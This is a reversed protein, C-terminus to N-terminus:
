PAAEVQYIRGGETTLYLEGYSDRHLSTPSQVVADIHETLDTVVGGELRLSRVVGACYDTFLYRGVLDPFCGGRYVEGGIIACYYDPAGHPIDLVPRRRGVTECGTLPDYCADGEMDNWGFNTGAIQEAPVHDLEEHENQGVDGLYLDGNAPDFSWRWPNRLGIAYVEGRGGGMVYPNGPPIGYPLEASPHDVDIRLLKALLQSPDQGNENPDGGGGGDGTGIVLYGSSDFAIMGGNHNVDYDRVRLIDRRSAPDAHDPDGAQTTYEAVTNFRYVTDETFYVYLKRNNGYDPHFALGLLGKERNAAAVPGGSTARLDLFPPDVVVGDRILRIAGLKEIVFLRDDSPPSTVLLPPDDSVAIQRLSVTTGGRPTCRPSVRADIVPPPADIAPPSVAADSAPNGGGCAALIALVASPVRM